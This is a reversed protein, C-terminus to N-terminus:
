VYLPELRIIGSFQLVTFEINCVEAEVEVVDYNFASIAKNETEVGVLRGAWGSGGSWFLVMFWAVLTCRNFHEVDVVAEISILMVRLNKFWEDM